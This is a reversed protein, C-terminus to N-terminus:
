KRGRFGAAELLIGTAIAGAGIMGAGGAAPTPPPSLALSAIQRNKEAEYSAPDRTLAEESASLAEEYRELGILSSGKNVWGEVLEPDLSVAMEAAILGERYRGMQNLAFAKNNWAPANESDLILAQEAATIAEPYRGLANLIGAKTVVALTFNNNEELAEDISALAENYQGAYALDVGRNYQEIAVLNDASAACGISLIVLILAIFEPHTM